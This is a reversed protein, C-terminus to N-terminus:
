SKARFLVPWMRELPRGNADTALLRVRFREMLPTIALRYSGNGLSEAPQADVAAEGEATMLQSKVDSIEPPLHIEIDQRVRLRSDPLRLGPMRVSSKAMVSFM